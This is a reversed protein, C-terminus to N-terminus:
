RLNVRQAWCVWVDKLLVQATRGTRASIAALIDGQEDLELRLFEPM